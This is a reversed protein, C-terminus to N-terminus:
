NLVNFDYGGARLVCGEGDYFCDQDQNCGLLFGVDSPNQLVCKGERCVLNCLPNQATCCDSNKSCV